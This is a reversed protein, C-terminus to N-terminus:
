VKCVNTLSTARSLPSTMTRSELMSLTKSQTSSPRKILHANDEEKGKEEKDKKMEGKIRQRKKIGEKRKLTFM